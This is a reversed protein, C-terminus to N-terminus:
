SQQLELNSIDNWPTHASVYGLMSYRNWTHQHFECTEFDKAALKSRRTQWKPWYPDVQIDFIIKRQSCEIRIGQSGQRKLIALATEDVMSSTLETVESETSENLKAIHATALLHKGMGSTGHESPHRLVPQCVICIIGRSSTEEIGCQLYFRWLPAQRSNNWAICQKSGLNISAWWADLVIQLTFDSLDRIFGLEYRSSIIVELLSTNLSKSGSMATPILFTPLGVRFVASPLSVTFCVAPEYINVRCSCAFWVSRHSMAHMNTFNYVLVFQFSQGQLVWHQLLAICNMATYSVSGGCFIKVSLPREITPPPLSITLLMKAWLPPPDTLWPNVGKRLGWITWFALGFITSPRNLNMKLLHNRYWWSCKQVYLRGICQNHTLTLACRKSHGHHLVWFRQHEM